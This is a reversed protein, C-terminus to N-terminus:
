WRNEVDSIEKGSKQDPKYGDFSQPRKGLHGEREFIRNLPFM